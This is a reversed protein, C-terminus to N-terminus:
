AAPSATSSTAAPASCGTTSASAPWSTPTSTTPSRGPTRTSYCRTPTSGTATRTWTPSSARRPAPAGTRSWPWNRGWVRFGYLANLQLGQLNGRWVGDAGKALLFTDTAREALAKAFIELQVRTAGPAYVSFTIGEASPHAGM